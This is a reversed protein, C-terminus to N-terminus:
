REIRMTAQSTLTYWNDTSGLLRALFPTAAEFRYSVTVRVVDNDNYFDGDRNNDLTPFIDLYTPELVTLKDAILGATLRRVTNQVNLWCTDGPCYIGGSRAGERAANNVASYFYVARGIDFIVMLFLVLIPLLLAFEVLGQAQQSKVHKSSM